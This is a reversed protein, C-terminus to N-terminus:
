SVGMASGAASRSAIIFPWYNHSACLGLDKTSQDAAPNSDFHFFFSSCSFFSMPHSKCGIEYINIDANCTEFASGPSKLSKLNMALM